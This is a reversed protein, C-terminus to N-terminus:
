SVIIGHLLLRLYGSHDVDEFMTDGKMFLGRNWVQRPMDRLKGARLDPVRFWFRLAQHHGALILASDTFM